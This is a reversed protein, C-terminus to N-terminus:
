IHYKEAKSLIIFCSHIEFLTNESSVAQHKFFDTLYDSINKM